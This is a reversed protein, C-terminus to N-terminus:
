PIVAVPCDTHHLCGWSTSGLVAATLGTHGRGGVVILAADVAAAVLELDAVGEVLRITVAVGSDPELERLAQALIEEGAHKCDGPPIALTPAYPSALMVPVHWAHVVVLECHRRQAEHGAWRLARTAGDSGDVGVVIAAGGSRDATAPVVVTPCVRRHLLASSVSGVFLSTLAGHGRTGVVLLDADRATEALVQVPDGAILEVHTSPSGEGSAVMDAVVASLSREQDALFEFVPLETRRDVIEFADPTLVKIVRCRVHRRGAEAIAWQLAPRSSVSGDVGVVVDGPESALLADTVPAPRPVVGTASRGSITM